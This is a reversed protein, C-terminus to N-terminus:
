VRRTQFRPRRSRFIVRPKPKRGTVVQEGNLDTPVLLNLAKGEKGFRGTRGIRHIYDERSQPPDYNIVHEIDEVDIGRGALDTAVMIRHSGMRFKMLAQKRQGQTRGGHLLVVKHGKDHLINALRESRNQTKAFIIIKGQRQELEKLILGNKELATTHITEEKVKPAPQHTHGISVRVPTKLFSEAITKVEPPLTASFVMTQREKPLFKLIQKIQPAFGMDLMRDVEDLILMGVNNLHMTNEGLHDNLRGPTAVIFDCGRFFVEAQRSFSEGGVVLLGKLNSGKAMQNLVDLIQAALERTPALVLAQKSDQSHLFRHLPIGFAGTKGTGTQATGLIDKGELAPPISAAQIPTPQKFAMADLARNLAQPLKLETFNQFTQM